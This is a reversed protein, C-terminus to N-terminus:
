FTLRLQFYFELSGFGSSFGLSVCLFFNLGSGVGPGFGLDFCRIASGIGILLLRLKLFVV